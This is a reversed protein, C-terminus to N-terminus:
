FYLYKIIEPFIKEMFIAVITGLVLFPIFPVQSKMTGKKLMVLITAYISGFMFSLLLGLLVNKHGLFLGALFGIYVDGWGMWKEKSFFVLCFFFLWSMLGGTLGSVLSLQFFSSGSLYESFSLFALYIIVVGLLIWFIIVPMEMFQWDYALLVFFLSFITLYFGTQWYSFSDGIVLFYKSTLAFVIGTFVEILPYRWSIRGKCSRCRARLFVFSLLPINDYWKIKAKCHPCHSRGMITEALRLRYVVVNLFSGIILGAIFFIISM